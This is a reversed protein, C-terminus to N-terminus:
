PVRVARAQQHAALTQSIVGQAGRQLPHRRVHLDGDQVAAAGAREDSSFTADMEGREHHILSDSHAPAGVQHRAAEVLRGLFGVGDLAAVEGLSQERAKPPARVRCPIAPDRQTLDVLVGVRRRQALGLRASEPRLVRRSVDLQDPGPVQNLYECVPTRPTSSYVVSLTGNFRPKLSPERCM